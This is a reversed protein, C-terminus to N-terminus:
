IIYNTTTQLERHSQVEATLQRQSEKSAQLHIRLEEKELALQTCVCPYGRSGKSLGGLGLDVGLDLGGSGFPSRLLWTTDRSM